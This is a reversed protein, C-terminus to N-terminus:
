EQDLPSEYKLDPNYEDPTRDSDAYVPVTFAMSALLISAMLKRKMSDELLCLYGTFMIIDYFQLFFVLTIPNRQHKM